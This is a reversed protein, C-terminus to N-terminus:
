RESVVRALGVFCEFFVEGFDAEFLVGVFDLFHDARDFDGLGAEFVDDANQRSGDAVVAAFADDFACERGVGALFAVAQPILGDCGGAVM